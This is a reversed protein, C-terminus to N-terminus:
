AKSGFSRSCDNLRSKTSAQILWPNDMSWKVTGGKRQGRLVGKQRTAPVKAAEIDEMSTTVHDIVDYPVQGGSADARRDSFTALEAAQLEKPEPMGKGAEKTTQIVELEARKRTNRWNFIASRSPTPLEHLRFHKSSRAVAGRVSPGVTSDLCELKIEAPIDYTGQAACKITQPSALTQASEKEARVQDLARLTARRRESVRRIEEVEFQHGTQARSTVFRMM